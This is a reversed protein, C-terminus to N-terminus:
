PRKRQERILRRELLMIIRGIRQALRPDPSVFQTGLLDFNGVPDHRLNRVEVTCQLPSEGPFEIVCDLPGQRRSLPLGPALRISIGSVSIDHLSGAFVGDNGSELTVPVQLLRHISLRFAHRRQLYRLVEPFSVRYFAIGGMEGLDLVRCRFSVSAGQLRAFVGLEDGISLPVGSAKRVPEDLTMVGAQPDVNLITSLYQDNSDPQSVSVPVRRDALRQLLGALRTRDVVSEAQGEYEALADTNTPGDGM